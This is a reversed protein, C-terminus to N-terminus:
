KHDSPSEGGRGGEEGSQGKEMENELDEPQQEMAPHGSGGRDGAAEPSVARGVVVQSLRIIREQTRYGRREERLVIGDQEPSCPEVAVAEHLHPDFPKGAAEIPVVGRRALADQLRRYTLELGGMWGEVDEVPIEPLARKVGTAQGMARWWRQVTADKLRQQTGALAQVLARGEELGADLGDLTAIMDDLAAREVEDRLQQDREHKQVLQARLSEEMRELAPGLASVAAHISELTAGSRVLERGLRSSERQSSLIGERLQAVEASIGQRANELAAGLDGTMERSLEELLLGLTEEARANLYSMMHRALRRSPMGDAREEEAADRPDRDEAREMAVEEVPRLCRDGEGTFRPETEEEAPPASGERAAPPSTDQRAGRWRGLLGRFAGLAGTM